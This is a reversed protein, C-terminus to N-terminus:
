KKPFDTMSVTAYLLYSFLPFHPNQPHLAGIRNNANHVVVANQDCPNTLQCLLFQPFGDFM